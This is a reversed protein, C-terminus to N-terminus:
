KSKAKKPTPKYNKNQKESQITLLRALRRKAEAMKGPNELKRAAMQFRLEVIEKRTDSIHGAFDEVALEKIEHVRM